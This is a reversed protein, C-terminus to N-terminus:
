QLRRRRQAELAICRQITTPSPLAKTYFDMIPMVGSPYLQALYNTFVERYNTQGERNFLVQDPVGKVWKNFSARRPMVESRNM